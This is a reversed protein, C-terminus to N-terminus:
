IDSMTTISCRLFDDRTPRCLRQDVERYTSYREEALEPFLLIFSEYSLVREQTEIAHSRAEFLKKLKFMKIPPWQEKLSAPNEM